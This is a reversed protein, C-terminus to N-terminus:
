QRGEEGTDTSALWVRATAIGFNGDYGRLNVTVFHEGPMLGRTDWQWTMPTFGVENEFVFHGDVFFVPEFRTALARAVQGKQVEIRVPTIGSVLPLGARTRRQSKPFSIQVPLDGRDSYAQQSADYMRRQSVAPLSRRRLPGTLDPLVQSRDPLPGVIVTNIPLAFADVAVQLRPHRQLTLVASQDLGDWVETRQGGPRPVWDILTRLLPGDNDFGLRVRVRAPRELVYLIEGRSRDVLVDEVPVSAGGTVDAPDYVVGTGTATVVEIVYTYAEPPVPRGGEDLGDWEVEQYGSGRTGLALERVLLDQGDYVRVTARGPESQVFHIAAKERSDPHFILKEVGVGTITVGAAALPVSTLAVALALIVAAVAVAANM